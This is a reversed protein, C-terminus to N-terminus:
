LINAGVANSIALFGPVSLDLAAAQLYLTAGGPLGPPVSVPLRFEGLGDAFAPISLNVPTTVITGVVLPTPNFNVSGLIWIPTASAAGSLVLEADNGGALPEGCLSLALNGPGGFGLNPQCLNCEVERVLFNDVAAEVLAGVEDKAVFRVVVNSTPVVFDSVTFEHFFWDGSSESGTPGVVEVATFSAGGDNSISVVFTELGPNAGGSNHFWRWYSIRADKGALDLVPSRLTTAGGDVDNAGAGGGPHQGTVFCQDGGITVDQSPQSSTGIPDVREWVGSTASDGPAGVVWGTSTEFQDAFLVNEIGVEVAVVQSTVQGCSPEDFSVFYEPSSGCPAGPLSGSYQGNGQDVMPVSAFPDAPSFRYNLLVSGNPAGAIQATIATSQDPTLLTLVEVSAGLYIPLCAEATNKMVDVVTPHFFTTINTMGGPCLHCYSMITGNNVCGGQACTDIPPSYSHTHPSGFNHGTEHTFVVFDWNFPGVAIPFPVQGDINASVAFSVQQSGDCIANLYAVGGGLSAGSLFHGLRAGAPVNGSWASAFENLMDSTSGVFDPVSWPDSPSTYFQIYPFTLITDIQEEYRASSAALLSAVHAAQAVVDGGFVQNLQFDTEIAISCERLNCTPAAGPPPADFPSPTWSPTTERTVSDTACEFRVEMGLERLEAESAIWAGARGWDGGEGATPVLHMLSTGDSWWGRAGRNSFSLMAESGPRGEVTGTWVSLDLGALLDPVAVGDVRWGFHLRDLDVRQLRLNVSGAAGMPVGTLRVERQTQLRGVALADAEFGRLSPHPASASPSLPFPLSTQAAATPAGLAALLASWLLPSRNM